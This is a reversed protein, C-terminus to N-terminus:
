NSVLLRAAFYGALAATTTLAVGWAMDIPILAAPWGRTTALNTLNYTGYAVLGLVAANLAVAGAGGGMLGPRVAFWIVGLLYILYFLIAAILGIEEARLVGMQRNYIGKAIVGLWILDLVLFAIGSAITATIWTM